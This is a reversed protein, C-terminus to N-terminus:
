LFANRCKSQWDGEAFAILDLESAGYENVVPIGLQTELLLKDEEFLMESTAIVVKLTPCITKLLLNHQRLVAFLVISSTYGNIYDFKETRFKAVITELILMQYFISIPFRYRKGLFDKFREKSILLIQLIAMFDRKIRVTLILKSGVL